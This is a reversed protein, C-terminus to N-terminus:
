SAGLASACLDLYRPHLPCLQIPAPLQLSINSQSIRTLNIVVRQLTRNSKSFPKIINVSIQHHHWHQHWDDTMMMCTEGYVACRPNSWSILIALRYRLWPAKRAHLLNRTTRSVARNLYQKIHRLVALNWCGRLQAVYKYCKQKEKCDAGCDVAESEESGRRSSSYYLSRSSLM